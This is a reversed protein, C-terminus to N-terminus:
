LERAIEFSSAFICLLMLGNLTHYFEDEVTGLGVLSM